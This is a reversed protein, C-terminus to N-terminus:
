EGGEVFYMDMRLKVPISQLRAGITSLQPPYMSKGSVFSKAISKNGLEVVRMVATVLDELAAKFKFRDIEMTGSNINFQISDNKILYGLQIIAALASTKRPSGLMSMHPLRGPSNLSFNAYGRRVQDLLSLVYVTYYSIDQEGALLGNELLVDTNYAALAQAKVSEILPYYEGLVEPLTKLKKRRREKRIVQPRRRKFKIPGLSQEEQETEEVKAVLVQGLHHSLRRMVVYSLYADAEVDVWREPPLLVGGMPKLIREVYADVLNKFIIIKFDAEGSPIMSSGSRIDPYVLSFFVKSRNSAYALHAIKFEPVPSAITVSKKAGKPKPLRDSMASFIDRYQAMGETASFDNVYVLTDFLNNDAYAMLGPSISFISSAAWIPKLYHRNRSFVIEARNKELSNWRPLQTYYLNRTRINGALSELYNKHCPDTELRAAKELLKVIKQRSKSTPVAPFGTGDDRDFIQGIKTLIDLQARLVDDEDWGPGGIPLLVASGAPRGTSAGGLLGPGILLVSIIVLPIHIAMGGPFTRKRLDKGAAMRNNKRKKLM